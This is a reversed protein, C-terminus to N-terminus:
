HIGGILRVDGVESGGDERKEHPPVPPQLRTTLRFKVSVLVAQGEPQLSVLWELLVHPLTLVLAKVQSEAVKGTLPPSYM